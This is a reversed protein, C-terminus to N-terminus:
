RMRVYTRVIFKVMVTCHGIEKDSIVKGGGKGEWGLGKGAHDGPQSCQGECSGTDVVQEHPTGAFFRLFKHERQCDSCQSVSLGCETYVWYNKVGSLQNLTM